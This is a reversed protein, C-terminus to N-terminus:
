AIFIETSMERQGVNQFLKIRSQNPLNQFM